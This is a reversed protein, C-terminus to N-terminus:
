EDGLNLNIQISKGGSTLDLSTKPALDLLKTVSNMINNYANYQYIARAEAAAGLLEQIMKEKSYMFKIKFEEKFREIKEQIHPQKLLKAGETGATAYSANPFCHLYAQTANEYVSYHDAFKDHALIDKKKSIM